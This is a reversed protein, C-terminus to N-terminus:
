KYIWKFGGGTKKRGKLCNSILQKSVGVQIAAEKVGHIEKIQNGNLDCQVIWKYQPKNKLRNAIHNGKNADWYKKVREGTKRHQENKAEVTMKALGKSINVKHWDKRPIGKIPSPKGLHSNSMTLKQAENRKLGRAKYLPKGTRSKSIKELTEKSHTRGKLPAECKIAVNFVEKSERYEDLILQELEILKDPHCFAILQFRLDRYKDNHRQLHTNRHVCRDLASKHAGFRKKLNVSSGIYIKNFDSDSVIKYIGSKSKDTDNIEFKM